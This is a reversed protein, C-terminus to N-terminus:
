VLRSNNNEKTVDPKDLHKMALKYRTNKAYAERMKDDYIFFNAEYMELALKNLSKEKEPAIDLLTSPLAWPVTCRVTAAIGKSSGKSYASTKYDIEEPGNKEEAIKQIYHLWSWDAIGTPPGRSSRSPASTSAPAPAQAAEPRGTYRPGVRPLLPHSIIPEDYDDTMHWDKEEFM